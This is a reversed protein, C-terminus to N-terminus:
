AGVPADELGAPTAIRGRADLEDGACVLTVGDAGVAAVAAEAVYLADRCEGPDALVDPQLVLGALPPALVYFDDEPGAALPDPEVLFVRGGPAGPGEEGPSFVAAIVGLKEGDRGFVDKGPMAGCDEDSLPNWAVTNTAM